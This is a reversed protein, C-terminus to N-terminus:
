RSAATPMLQMQRARHAIQFREMTAQYCEPCYGHSVREEGKTKRKKMWSKGSKTRHCVCCVTTM